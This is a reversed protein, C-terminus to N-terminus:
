CSLEGKIAAQSIPTMVVSTLKQQADSQNLLEYVKKCQEPHLHNSLIILNRYETVRYQLLYPTLCKNQIDIDGPSLGNLMIILHWINSRGKTKDVELKDLESLVLLESIDKYQPVEENSSPEWSADVDGKSYASNLGMKYAEIENRQMKAQMLEEIFDHYHLFEPQYYQKNKYIYYDFRRDIAKSMILDAILRVKHRMMPSTNGESLVTSFIKFIDIPIMKTVKCYALLMSFNKKNEIIITANNKLYEIFGPRKDRLTDSLIDAEGGENSMRENLIERFEEVSFQKTVEPKGRQSRSM